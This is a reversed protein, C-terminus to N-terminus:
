SKFSVKVLGKIMLEREMIVRKLEKKIETQNMEFQSKIQYLGRLNYQVM